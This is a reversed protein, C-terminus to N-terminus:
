SEYLAAEVELKNIMNVATAVANDTDDESVFPAGFVAMIADGMFKDLTGGNDFIVDVMAAFYENLVSVMERAGLKESLTTFDRIDSFLITVEQSTGGVVDDHVDLLRDVVKDSMFRVMTSKVRKEQTIDEFVLMDGILAGDTDTMPAVTLNVAVRTDGDAVLEKDLLSIFM